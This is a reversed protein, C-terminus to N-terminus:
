DRTYPCDTCVMYCFTKTINNRGHIRFDDAHYLNGSSVTLSDGKILYVRNPGFSQTKDCSPDSGPVLTWNTGIFPNSNAASRGSFVSIVGVLAVVGVAVKALLPLSRATQAVSLLVAQAPPFQASQGPPFQAPQAPPFQAYQTPPLQAPPAPPFQSYQVPPPQPAPPAPPFSPPPPPPPASM